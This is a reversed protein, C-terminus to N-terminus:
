LVAQRTRKSLQGRGSEDCNDRSATLPIFIFRILVRSIVAAQVVGIVTSVDIHFYPSSDNHKNRNTNTM